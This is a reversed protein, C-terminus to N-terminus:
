VGTPGTSLPAGAARRARQERIRKVHRIVLDAAADITTQQTSSGWSIRVAEAAQEKSLGIATLVHSPTVSGSSCASGASVYMGDLDLATLMVPSPIGEFRINSTNPLRDSGGCQICVGELAALLKAEFRDRLASIRAIEKADPLVSCAGAFGAIGVMNQTGGRRKTEQGGGFRTRELQMGNRVVLAGCGKPGHIKHASLSILDACNWQAPDVKGFAQVADTHFCVKAAKCLAAIKATPFIIGTENNATMVSVMHPKFEALKKELDALDLQGCPLLGVTQVEAGLRKLLDFAGYVSAHEVSTSLLRFPRNNKFLYGLLAMGNSEAGGSTFVVENPLVGAAAAVRSRWAELLESAKQGRQHASSPNGWQAIAKEMEALAAPSLPTTANHDAYIEM